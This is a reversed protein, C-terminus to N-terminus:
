SKGDCNQIRRRRRWPQKGGSSEYQRLIARRYTIWALGMKKEDKGIVLGPTDKDVIFATIGYTGKSPDTSAFVIYVDAEGGNTIFMKSGNLVYHDGNKVARTKLSGADSGSSAETLCFAGLYEGSALKRYIDSKRSM